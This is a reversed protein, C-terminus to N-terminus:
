GRGGLLASEIARVTERYMDEDEGEYKGFPVGCKEFGARWAHNPPPAAHRREKPQMIANARKHRKPSVFPLVDFAHGKFSAMVGINAGVLVDIRSQAPLSPSGAGYVIQLSRGGYLFVGGADISGKEKVCLILDLNEDARLKRFASQANEPEVAFNSNFAYVYQQLFENAAEVTGIGRTAFEVPLRSQLTDWLREVRGKAQPSKAAILTVSLEKLCRGMQTDGVPVSADIEHRKANPSQFITHRDAYLSQPVGYAKITRRLLEFYGHLCENKCMYLGTIQGTADDVAGHLSYQKRDDRFWRYCTADVQLMLGAQARRQRRRHAKFRRRTKPSVSGNETLLKHLAAYSVDIGHHESIIERFHSFNSGQYDERYLRRIEGRVDDPIRCAAPRATNGHIVGAAGNDRDMKKLRKAQRASIGLAESAEKVTIFNAIAKSIVDYRNIQKQSMTIKDKEM